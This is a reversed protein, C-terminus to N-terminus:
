PRRNQPQARGALGAVLDRLAVAWAEPAGPLDERRAAFASELDAPSMTRQVGLASERFPTRVAFFAEAGARVFRGDARYLAGTFHVVEAPQDLSTLWPVAVAHGTGLEVAKEGKLNKQAVPYDSRELAVFLVYGAGAAAARAGARKRWAAPADDVHVVCAARGAAAVREGADGPGPLPDLPAFFGDPVGVYIRPADAPSSLSDAGLAVSAALSDLTAAFVPAAREVVARLETGAERGALTPGVALPLHALRAGAPVPKGIYRPPKRVLDAHVDRAAAPAAPALGALLALFLVRAAMRGPNSAISTGM